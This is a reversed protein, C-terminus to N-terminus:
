EMKAYVRLLPVMETERLVAVLYLMVGGPCLGLLNELGGYSRTCIIGFSAYGNLINYIPCVTISGSCMLDSPWM